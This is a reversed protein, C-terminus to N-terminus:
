ENDVTSLVASCKIPEELLRKCQASTRYRNDTNLLSLACGLVETLKNRLQTSSSSRKLRWADILHSMVVWMWRTITFNNWMLWEAHCLSFRSNGRNLTFSSLTSLSEIVCMETVYEAESKKRNRTRWNGTTRHRALVSIKACDNTTLISTEGWRECMWTLQNRLNIYLSSFCCFQLRRRRRAVLSTFYFHRTFIQM